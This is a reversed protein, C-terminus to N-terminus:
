KCTNRINFKTNNDKNKRPNDTMNDVLNSQIYICNNISYFATVNLQKFLKSM